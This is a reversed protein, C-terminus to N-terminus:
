ALSGTVREKVDRYSPDEAYLKEWEARAKAKQGLEEYAM